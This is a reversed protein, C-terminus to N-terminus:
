IEYYGVPNTDSLGMISFVSFTLFIYIIGIDSPSKLMKAQSNAVM